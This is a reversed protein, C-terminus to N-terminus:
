TYAHNHTHVVDNYIGGNYVFKTCRVSKNNNDYTLKISSTCTQMPLPAQKVHCSTINICLPKHTHKQQRVRNNKKTQKGM